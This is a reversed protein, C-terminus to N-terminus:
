KNVGGDVEAAHSNNEVDGEGEAENQLVIITRDM